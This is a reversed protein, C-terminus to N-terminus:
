EDGEYLRVAYIDFISMVFASLCALFIQISLGTGSAMIVLIYMPVVVVIFLHALAGLTLGLKPRNYEISSQLAAFVGGNSSGNNRVLIPAASWTLCYFVVGPIVFALLGLTVGINRLINLLVFKPLLSLGRGYCETVSKNHGSGANGMVFLTVVAQVWSSIFLGLCFYLILSSTDYNIVGDSGVVIMKDVDFGLSALKQLLM